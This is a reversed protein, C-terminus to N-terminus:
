IQLISSRPPTTFQPLSLTMHTDLNGAYATWEKMNAQPNPRETKYEWAQGSPAQQKLAGMVKMPGMTM